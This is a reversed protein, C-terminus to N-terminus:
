SEDFEKPDIKFIRHGMIEFREGLNLNLPLPLIGGLELLGFTM